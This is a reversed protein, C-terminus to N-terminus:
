HSIIRANIIAFYRWRDLLSHFLERSNYGRGFVYITSKRYSKISSKHYISYKLLRHSEARPPLLASIVCRWMCTQRLVSIAVLTHFARSKRHRSRFFGGPDQAPAWRVSLAAFVSSSQADGYSSVGYVAVHVPGASLGTTACLSPLASQEAELASLVTPMWFCGACVAGCRFLFSLKATLYAETISSLLM